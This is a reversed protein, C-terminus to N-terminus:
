LTRRHSRGTTSHAARPDPPRQHRVARTLEMRSASDPPTSRTPTDTDTTPDLASLGTTSPRRRQRPRTPGRLDGYAHTKPEAPRAKDFDGQSGLENTLHALCVVSSRTADAFASLAAAEMEVALVGKSKALDIADATERFPADTTWTAGVVVPQAAGSLADAAKKVLRPDAVAYESPAMYHYSTGEDRVGPRHYRFLTAAHGGHDTRCIYRQDAPSLRQRFAARRRARRIPRWCCM